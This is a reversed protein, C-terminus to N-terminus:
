LEVLEYTRSGAEFDEHVICHCTRMTIYASYSRQEEARKNERYWIAYSLVDRRHVLVIKGLVTLMDVCAQFLLNRKQASNRSKSIIEGDGDYIMSGFVEPDRPTHLFFLETLKAMGRGSWKSVVFQYARGLYNFNITTMRSKTTIEVDARVEKEAIELSVSIADVHEVSGDMTPM